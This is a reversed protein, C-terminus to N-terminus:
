KWGGGLILPDDEHFGGSSKSHKPLRKYLYKVDEIFENWKKESVEGMTYSHTYGM